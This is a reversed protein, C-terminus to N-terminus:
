QPKSSSASHKKKQRDSIAPPAYAYELRICDVVWVAMYIHTHEECCHIPLSMSVQCLLIGTCPSCRSVIVVVPPVSINFNQGNRQHCQYARRHITTHVYVLHAYVGETPVGAATESLHRLSVYWTYLQKTTDITIIDYSYTSVQQTTINAGVRINAQSRPTLNFM